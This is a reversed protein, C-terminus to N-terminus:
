RLQPLHHRLFANMGDADGRLARRLDKVAARADLARPLLTAVLPPGADPRGGADPSPTAPAQADEPAGADQVGVGLVQRMTALQDPDLVYRCTAASAVTAPTMLNSAINRHTLGATHGFEHAIASEAAAPYQKDVKALFSGALFLMPTYDEGLGLAKLPSEGDTSERALSRELPASLGLGALTVDANATLPNSGVLLTPLIVVNTRGTGEHGFRRAFEIVNAFVVQTAYEDVAKETAPDLDGDLNVLPFHKRVAAELRTNDGDIAYPMDVSKPEYRTFFNLSHRRYPRQLSRAFLPVDYNGSKFLRIERRGSLADDVRDCAEDGYTPGEFWSAFRGEDMPEDSEPPGNDGGCGSAAAVLAVLAWSRLNRGRRM